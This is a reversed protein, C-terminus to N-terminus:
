AKIQYDPELGLEDMRVRIAKFMSTMLPAVLDSKVALAM